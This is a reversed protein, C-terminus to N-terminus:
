ISSFAIAAFHTLIRDGSVPDFRRAKERAGELGSMTFPKPLFHDDYRGSAYQSRIAISSVARGPARSYWAMDLARCALEATITEGMSRGVIRRSFLDLVV